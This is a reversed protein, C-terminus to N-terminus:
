MRLIGRYRNSWPNDRPVWPRALGAGLGLIFMRSKFPHFSANGCVEICSEIRRALVKRGGINCLIPKCAPCAPLLAQWDYNEVAKLWQYRLSNKTKKLEKLVTILCINLFLLWAFRMRTPKNSVMKSLKSHCHSPWLQFTFFVVRCTPGPV